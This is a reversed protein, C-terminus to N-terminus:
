NDLASQRLGFRRNLGSVLTPIILFNAGVFNEMTKLVPQLHLSNMLAALAELVRNDGSLLECHLVMYPYRIQSFIPGTM